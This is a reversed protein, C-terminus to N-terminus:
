LPYHSLHQQDRHLHQIRERDNSQDPTTLYNPKLVQDTSAETHQALVCRDLRILEALSWAQFPCGRPTHPAEADAIESVHGLGAHALHDFLL